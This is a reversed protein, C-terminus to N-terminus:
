RATCGGSGRRAPARAHPPLGAAVAGAHRGHHEVEVVELPEVVRVPVGGAVGDQARDGARQRGGDARGVHEGAGAALLEDHEAQDAVGVLRRPQGLAQAGGDGVGAGASPCATVAEIPTASVRGTPRRPRRGVRQPPQDVAGVGRHVLGLLLAAVPHGRHPHRPGAAGGASSGRRGVRGGPRRRRRVCPGDRAQSHRPAPRDAEAESTRMVSTAGSGVRATGSGSRSCAATRSRHSVWRRSSTSGPRISRAPMSRHSTM